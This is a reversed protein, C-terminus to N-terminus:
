RILLVILICWHCTTQPYTTSVHVNSSGAKTLQTGADEEWGADILKFKVGSPLHKALGASKPSVITSSVGIFSYIFLYIFNLTQFHSMWLGAKEDVAADKWLHFRWIGM